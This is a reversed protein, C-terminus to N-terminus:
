ANFVCQCLRQMMADRELCRMAMWACLTHAADPFTYLHRQYLLDFRTFSQVVYPGETFNLTEAYHELIDEQYFVHRQEFQFSFSSQMYADFVRLRMMDVAVADLATGESLVDKADTDALEIVANVGAAGRSMKLIKIVSLPARPRERLFRPRDSPRMVHVLYRERFRANVLEISLTESQARLFVNLRSAAERMSPIRLLECVRLGLSQEGEVRPWLTATYLRVDIGRFFWCVEELFRRSYRYLQASTTTTTTTTITTTTPKAMPDVPECYDPADFVSYPWSSRLLMATRLRLQEVYSSLALANYPLTALRTEFQRYHAVLERANWSMLPAVTRLLGNVRLYLLFETLIEPATRNLVHVNANLSCMACLWCFSLELTYVASSSSSSSSSSSVREVVIPRQLTAAHNHAYADLRAQLRLTALSELELEEQVPAVFGANKFREYDHNLARELVYLEQCLARLHKPKTLKPPLALEREVDLISRAVPVQLRVEELRPREM